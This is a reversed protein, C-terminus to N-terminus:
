ELIKCECETGISDVDEVFKLYLAQFSTLNTACSFLKLFFLSNGPIIKPM